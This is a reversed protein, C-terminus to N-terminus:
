KKDTDRAAWKKFLMHEPSDILHGRDRFAIRFIRAPKLAPWIPEPFRDTPAPFVRYCRNELDTYMRVWQDIGQQLGIEKTRAYENQEGDGNAGRVPVIKVAGRASLTLYLTHLSVTIGIGELAAIMEDSVVFFQREMGTEHDVVPVIPRFERNTRFFENKGGPMKGVSLSVIGVTAAGQTGPLDRRMRRYEAEEEELEEPTPVGAPPPEEASPVVMKLETTSKKDAMPDDGKKPNADSTM